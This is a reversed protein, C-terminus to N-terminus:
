FHREDSTSRLHWFKWLWRRYPCYMTGNERCPHSPRNTPTRCNSHRKTMKRPALAQPLLSPARRYRWYKRGSFLQMLLHGNPWSWHGGGSLVECTLGSSSMSNRVWSSITVSRTWLHRRCWACAPVVFVAWIWYVMGQLHFWVSAM